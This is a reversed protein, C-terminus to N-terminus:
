TQFECQDLIIMCIENGGSTNSQFEWHFVLFQVRIGPSYIINMFYVRPQHLIIPSPIACVYRTVSTQMLQMFTVIKSPM